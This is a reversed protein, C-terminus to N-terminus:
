DLTIVKTNRTFLYFLLLTLTGVVYRAIFDHIFHFSEPNDIVWLTIFYIRLMNIIILIIYAGLIWEIKLKYKTPYSLVGATFLLIPTMGNCANLILLELGNEFIVREDVISIPISFIYIWLNMLYITMTTQLESLIYLPSFGEFFILAFLVSVWIIYCAVYRLILDRVCHLSM